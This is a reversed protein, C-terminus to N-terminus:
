QGASQSVFGKRWLSDPIWGNDNPRKMIQTKDIYLLRGVLVDPLVIKKGIFCSSFFVFRSSFSFVVYVLDLKVLAAIHFRSLVIWVFRMFVM